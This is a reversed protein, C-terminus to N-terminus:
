PAYPATLKGDSGIMGIEQLLGLAKDKTNYKALFADVDEPTLRRQPNRLSELERLAHGWYCATTKNHYVLDTCEPSSPEVDKFVVTLHM